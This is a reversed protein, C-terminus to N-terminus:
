LLLALATPLRHHALCLPVRRRPAPRLPRTEGRLSQAHRLSLLGPVPSRRSTLPYGSLTVCFVGTLVCRRGSQDHRSGYLVRVSGEDPKGDECSEGHQHPAVPRRARAARVDQCFGNHQTLSVYRSSDSNTQPTPCILSLADRGPCYDVPSSKDGPSISVWEADCQLPLYDSRPSPVPVSVAGTQRAWEWRDLGDGCQSAWGWVTLDMGPM